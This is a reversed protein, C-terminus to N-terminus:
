ARLLRDRHYLHLHLRGQPPYIWSGRGQSRCRSLPRTSGAHPNLSGREQSYLLRRRGYIWCVAQLLLGHSPGDGIDRRGGRGEGMERWNGRGGEGAPRTAESSFLLFFLAATM